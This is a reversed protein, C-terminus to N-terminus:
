DEVNLLKDRLEKDQLLIALVDDLKSEVNNFRIDTKQELEQVVPVVNNQLHTATKEPLYNKFLMVALLLAQSIGISGGAIINDITALSEGSILNDGVYFAGFGTVSWVIVKLFINKTDKM